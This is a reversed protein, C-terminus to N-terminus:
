WFERMQGRDLPLLAPVDLGGSFMGPRGTLVIARADGACAAAHAALLATVFERDLANAPPRDMHIEAIMGSRITKLM